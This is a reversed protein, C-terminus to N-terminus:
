KVDSDGYGHLIKSNHESSPLLASQLTPSPHKLPQAM